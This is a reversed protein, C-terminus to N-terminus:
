IGYRGRLANFNQQVETATLARDYIKFNSINGRYYANLTTAVGIRFDGLVMNGNTTWSTSLINNIYILRQGATHNWILSFHNWGYRLNTAPTEIWASNVNWHMGVSWRTGWHVRASNWDGFASENRSKTNLAPDDFFGWYDFSIQPFSGTLPVQVYDNVGDFVFSGGDNSSYVPGDATGFNGNSSFDGVGTIAAGNTLVPLPTFTSTGVTTFTHVTDNGVRTVTGGTARQPGPYRIVVIGSGGAGGSTVQWAGGGGGGGTNAGAAGGNTNIPAGSGSNLASGGGSTSGAGSSCSGGGGGGLGGNGAYGNYYAGGGGGGGWYYTTGLINNPIGDGGRGQDTGPATVVIRTNVDSAPQGAGGGGAAATPTGVRPSLQSGGRNGYIFGSNPGLSNGSSAGGQGLLSDTSAAGAGSGGPQGSAGSYPGVGGGGAATAGFATSAGGSGSVGSYVVPTGGAGVAITYATGPNITASPIHIVGGAGGGGGLGGGGAGGGGVILVEAKTLASNKNNAADLHLVLGSRVVSTNYAIGV